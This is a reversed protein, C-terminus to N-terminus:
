LHQIKQQKELMKLRSAVLAMDEKSSSVTNSAEAKQKARLIADAERKKLEKIKERKTKVSVIVAALQNLEMSFSIYFGRVNKGLIKLKWKTKLEYKLNDMHFRTLYKQVNPPLPEGTKSNGAMRSLLYGNTIKCYPQKQLISRIAVFAIFGMIEKDTKPNSYYDMLHEKAISAKPCNDNLSEYLLRGHKYAAESDSFDIGIQKVSDELSQPMDQGSCRYYLCYCYVENIAGKIDISANKFLIIPFTLYDAATRKEAKM